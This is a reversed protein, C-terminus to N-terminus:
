NCQAAEKYLHPFSAWPSPVPRLASPLDTLHVRALGGLVTCSALASPLLHSIESRGALPLWGGEKDNWPSEM